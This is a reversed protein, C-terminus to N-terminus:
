SHINARTFINKVLNFYVLMMRRNKKLKNILFITKVKQFRFDEVELIKTGDKKSQLSVEQLDM